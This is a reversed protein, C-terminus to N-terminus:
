VKGMVNYMANMLPHRAAMHSTGVEIFLLYVRGKAAPLDSGIEAYGEADNYRDYISESAMGTDKPCLRKAEDRIIPAVKHLWDNGVQNALGGIARSIEGSSDIYSEGRFTGWVSWNLSGSM